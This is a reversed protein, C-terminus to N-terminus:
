FCSEILALLFVNQFLKAKKKLNLIAETRSRVKLKKYIHQIHTRVTDICIFLHDAIEKYRYGSTLLELIENERKTLKDNLFADPQFAAIVKRAVESSIPSGGEHLEIIAELMKSHGEKKLIYARAGANLSAFITKRDNSMSYMMFQTEPCAHRVKKILEIGTMRPLLDDMVVIDPQLVPLFKVAEEGTRFTGSCICRESRNLFNFMKERDTDSQDVFVTKIKRTRVHSGSLEVSITTTDYENM